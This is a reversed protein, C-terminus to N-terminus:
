TFTANLFKPAKIKLLLENMWENERERMSCPLSTIYVVHLLQGCSAVLCPYFEILLLSYNDVRKLPHDTCWSSTTTLQIQQNETEMIIFVAAFISLLLPKKKHPNHLLVAGSGILQDSMCPLCRDHSCWM